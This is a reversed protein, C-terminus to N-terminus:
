SASATRKKMQVDLHINIGIIITFFSYWKKTHIDMDHLHYDNLVRNNCIEQYERTGRPVPSLAPHGLGALPWLCFPFMEGQLPLLRNQLLCPPLNVMRLGAMCLPATVTLPLLIRSPRLSTATKMSTLSLASKGSKASGMPPMTTM